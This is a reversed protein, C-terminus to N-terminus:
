AELRPGARLEKDQLAGELKELERVSVGDDKCNGVWRALAQGRHRKATSILLNLNTPKRGIAGETAEAVRVEDM